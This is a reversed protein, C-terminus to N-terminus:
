ARGHESGRHDSRPQAAAAAADAARAIREATLPGGMLAASADAADITSGGVSALAIGSRVVSRGSLELAVAVSATAFDGVRRELKLYGGVRVGQPAPVVAEVA